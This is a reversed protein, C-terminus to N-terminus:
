CPLWGIGCDCLDLVRLKPAKPLGVALGGAGTCGMAECGWVQLERLNPMVGAAMAAGLARDSCRWATLACNKALTLEGLFPYRSLATIFATM